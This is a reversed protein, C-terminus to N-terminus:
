DQADGEEFHLALARLIDATSVEAAGDDHAEALTVFALAFAAAMQEIAPSWERKVAMTVDRITADPAFALKPMLDTLLSSIMGSTPEDGQERGERILRRRELAETLVAVVAQMVERHEM